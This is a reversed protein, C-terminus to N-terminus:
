VLIFCESQIICIVHSNKVLWLVKKMAKTPINHKGIVGIRPTPHSGLHSLISHPENALPMLPRGRTQDGTYDSLKKM